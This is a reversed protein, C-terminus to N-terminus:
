VSEWSFTKVKRKFSRMGGAPFFSLQKARPMGIGLRSSSGAGRFLLCLLLLSFFSPLPLRPGLRARHLLMEWHPTQGDWGAGVQGQSLGPYLWGSPVSPQATGVGTSHRLEMVSVPDCSLVLLEDSMNQVM